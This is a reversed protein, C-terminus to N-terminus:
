AGPFVEDSRAVPEGDPLGVVTDASVLQVAVPYSFGRYAVTLQNGVVFFRGNMPTDMGGEPCLALLEGFDDIPEAVSPLPRLIESTPPLLAIPHVLGSAGVIYVADAVVGPVEASIYMDNRFTSGEVAVVRGAWESPVLEDQAHAVPLGTALLAALALLRVAACRRRARWDRPQM